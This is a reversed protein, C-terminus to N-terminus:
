QLGNPDVELLFQELERQNATPPLPEIGGFSHGHRLLSKTSLLTILRTEIKWCVELKKRKRRGDM